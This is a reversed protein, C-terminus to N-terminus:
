RPALAELTRLRDAPNALMTTIMVEDAECADAFRNVHEAVAEPTGVFANPAMTALRQMEQQSFQYDRAQDVTPMRGPKGTLLHAMGVQVVKHLDSAHEETEGVVVSVTVISSPNDLYPSPTFGRRYSRMVDAAASPNIHAAFAFRLGIRAALDGSFASSGLLWIPPLAVDAPVVTIRRFPHDDPFDGDEYALMEALLQPYDDGSMAEQSRRLAYTTVPDTGPARGLGLDIRGPHLSELLHFAEVIRLPAHNPLMVGGAGVHITSTKGAVHAIMLEPSGSALGPTNHHEAFWYRRYGLQEARIALDTAHRLTEGSSSGEEINLLDLFSLPRTIM